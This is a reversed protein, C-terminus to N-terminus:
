MRRNRTRPSSAPGKEPAPEPAIAVVTQAERQMSLLHAYLGDAKNELEAHTGQEVLDGKDLVIVLARWNEVFHEQQDRGLVEIMQAQLPGKM